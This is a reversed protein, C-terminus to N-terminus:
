FAAQLQARVRLDLRDDDDDDRGVFGADVQAKLSTGALWVNCGALVEREAGVPTASPVDARVDDRLAELVRVEAYRLSLEWRADWVKSVRVLWGLLGPEYTGAAAAGDVLGLWGVAGLGVGGVKLEAEPAVRLRLDQRAVPASDWAASLGLSWRPPGGELDSPRRVNIGRANWALHVALEPHLDEEGAPDFLSSPNAVPAGYLKPLGVANSARSNRGGFLGLEWELEPPRGIGNHLLVGVQREAGFYRTPFSWDTVVRDKFSNLRHRTFPVKMVGVRSSLQEAWRRDVWLDMLELSGPATSLHLLWTTEKSLLSGKVTPRIRRFLARSDATRERDDGPDVWATQWRLQAALNFQLSSDGDRLAFRPPSPPAALAPATALLLLAPLAHLPQNM